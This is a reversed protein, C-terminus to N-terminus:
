TTTTSHVRSECVVGHTPLVLACIKRAILVCEQREREVWEGDVVAVWMEELQWEGCPSPVAHCTREHEDGGIEVDKLKKTRRMDRM